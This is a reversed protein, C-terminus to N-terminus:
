NEDIVEVEADGEIDIVEEGDQADAGPPATETDSAATDPDSTIVETETGIDDGATDAEPATTQVAADEEIISDDTFFGGFFLLILLVVVVAIGIYLGRNSSKAPKRPPSDRQDTRHPPTAM